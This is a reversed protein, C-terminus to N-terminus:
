LFLVLSHLNPCFSRKDEGDDYRLGEKLVVLKGGLECVRGRLWPLDISLSSFM